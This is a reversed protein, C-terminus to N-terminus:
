FPSSQIAVTGGVKRSVVLANPCPSPRCSTTPKSRRGGDARRAKAESPEADQRWRARAAYRSRKMMEPESHMIARTFTRELESQRERCRIGSSFRAPQRQRADTTTRSRQDAVVKDRVRPSEDAHDPREPRRLGAAAESGEDLRRAMMRAKQPRAPELRAILQQDLRPAFGEHNRPWVAGGAHGSRLRAPM